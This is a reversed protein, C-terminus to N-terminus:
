RRCGCRCGRSPAAFAAEVEVGLPVRAALHQDVRARVRGEADVPLHGSSKSRSARPAGGAREVAPDALDDAVAVVLDDPLRHVAEVGPEHVLHPDAPHEQGAVAGVQHRGNPARPRFEPTCSASFAAQFSAKTRCPQAGVLQEVGVVCSRWAAASSFMSTVPSVMSKRTGCSALLLPLVARCIRSRATVVRPGRAPRNPGGRRATRTRRSGASWTPGSASRGRVAPAPGCAVRRAPHHDDGVHRDLWLARLAQALEGRRPNM